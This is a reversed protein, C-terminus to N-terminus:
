ILKKKNSIIYKVVGGEINTLAISKAKEKVEKPANEMAIGLGVKEIMKIDNYNDGFAVVDEINKGLFKILHELMKEKGADISDIELWFWKDEDNELNYAVDEIYILSIDDKYREKVLQYLQNLKPEIDHFQISVIDFDLYKEYNEATLHKINDQSGWQGKLSHVINNKYDYSILVMPHIKFKKILTFIEKIIKREIKTVKLYKLTNPDALLAGNTLIIPYKLKLGTISKTANKLDRGTAISFELGEDILSNLQKVFRESLNNPTDLLTGDLDALIFKKGM